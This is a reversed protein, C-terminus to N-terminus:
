YRATGAIWGSITGVLELRVDDETRRSRKLVKFSHDAGDVEHLTARAGLEKCLPRLLDLRAFTDRTGQLFLMPLSVRALHKARETGPKGPPHLPFGLFVLGRVGELGSAAAARSSMRGGMSKGGAFLPLGHATELGFSVASRVTNELVHPPDPRRRGADMYPFQYRLSAIGAAALGRAVETMFGHTMGAGAGHALVYLAKATEPEVWLGGVHASTGAVPIRVPRADPVSSTMDSAAWAGVFCEQLAALGSAM